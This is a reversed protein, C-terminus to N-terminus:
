FGWGFYLEMDVIDLVESQFDDLSEISDIMLYFGFGVKKSVLCAM